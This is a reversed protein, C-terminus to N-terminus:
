KQLLDTLHIVFWALGLSLVIATVVGILVAIIGTAALDAVRRVLGSRQHTPSGVDVIATVTPARGIQHRVTRTRARTPKRWGTLLLAVMALVAIFTAKVTLGSVSLAVTVSM